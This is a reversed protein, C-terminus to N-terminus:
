QGNELEALQLQLKQKVGAFYTDWNSINTISNYVESTKITQLEQKLSAIKMRLNEMEAQLLQKKNIADSKSVFFNGKELNELIEKVRALDNREYAANLEAFLKTALEKQEDNVVDPHCLKSAKRYATKLEKQEEETLEAIQEGKTSEYQQHYSNFDEEAEQQQPTNKAQEKRFRLIKMLLEGLEQNHRIQFQHILKEADAKEDSLSNIEAELIKIEFKLAEIETDAYITVSHHQNIFTEIAVVAKSYSKENLLDILTAVEPIDFQQFKVIHDNIDDEEELSILSKILVLLKILKAIDINPPNTM